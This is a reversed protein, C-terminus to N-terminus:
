GDAGGISALGDGSATWSRSREKTLALFTPKPDRFLPTTAYQPYKEHLAAEVEYEATPDDPSMVVKQFHIIDEHLATKNKNVHSVFTRLGEPYCFEDQAGSREDVLESRPM